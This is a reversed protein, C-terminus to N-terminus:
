ARASESESIGVELLRAAYTGSSKAVRAREVVAGVFTDVTKM